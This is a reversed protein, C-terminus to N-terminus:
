FLIQGVKRVFGRKYLKYKTLMHIKKALNCSDLDGYAQLLEQQKPNLVNKYIKSFEDAQRYQKILGINCFSKDAAFSKKFASLAPVIDEDTFDTGFRSNIRSVMEQVTTPAPKPPEKAGGDSGPRVISGDGEVLKIAETMEFDIKYDSLEILKKIDSPKIVDDPTVSKLRLLPNVLRLYLGLKVLEADKINEINQLFMFVKVYRICKHKFEKKDEDRLKKYRAIFDAVLNMTQQAINDKAFDTNNLKNLISIYEEIETKEIISYKEIKERLQKLEEITYKSM